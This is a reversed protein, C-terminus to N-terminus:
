PSTSLVPLSTRPQASSQLLLNRRNDLQRGFRSKALHCDTYSHFGCNLAKGSGIDTSTTIETLNNASTGLYLRVIQTDGTGSNGIVIETTTSNRIQRKRQITHRKSTSNRQGHLDNDVRLNRSHSRRRHSHSAVHCTHAIHSEQIEVYKQQCQKEGTTAKFLVQNM